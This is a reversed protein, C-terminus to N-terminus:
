LYNEIIIKLQEQSQSGDIKKILSGDKFIFFTPIVEVGLSAALKESKDLDMKVFKVKNEFENSLSEFIPAMKKCPGCWTAYIDLIVLQSSQKVEQDFNKATVETVQTHIQAGALLLAAALLQKKFM